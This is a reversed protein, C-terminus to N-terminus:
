ENSRFYKVAKELHICGVIAIFIITNVDKFESIIRVVRATLHCMIGM